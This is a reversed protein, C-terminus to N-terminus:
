ETVRLCGALIYKYLVICYKVISFLVLWFQITVLITM